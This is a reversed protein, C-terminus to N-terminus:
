RAFGAVTLWFSAEIIPIDTFVNQSRAADDFARWNRVSAPRLRARQIVGHQDLAVWTLAEGRASEAWGLGAGARPRVEAAGAGAGNLQAMAVRESVIVEALMVQMRALVDGSEGSEASLELEEYPAFPHDSRCDIAVGSGRAVPGVLGLRRATERSVVGTAELRDVHSNTALLARAVRRLEDCLRPLGRRVVDVDPARAVGGPALVGFLYRHGFAAANLRLLEEVVIESQAQGVSLGTTQCMAAIAAAHNYIRELELALARTRIAPPPPEVQAAAELARCFALGNAIANLGDVREVFFLGREPGVGVLRREAGRHKHWQFLYLDLVEEGTTVLGMYLTEWAAVRVPGFPFEFAEGQVVHPAHVRELKARQRRTLKPFTAEAHPPMLVRNLPKDSAPRIAFQEYIECEEVFAAPDLDSLAPFEAGRVPCEVIAYRQEHDLAYVVHLLAGDGDPESAFLDALRAGHASALEDTVAALDESVVRAGAVGPSLQEFSAPRGRTPAGSVEIGGAGSM